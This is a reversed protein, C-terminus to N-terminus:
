YSVEAKEEPFLLVILPVEAALTQHRGETKGLDLPAMLLHQIHGVHQTQGVRHHPQDLLPGGLILEDHNSPHQEGTHDHEQHDLVQASWSRLQLWLKANTESM